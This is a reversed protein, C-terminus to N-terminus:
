PSKVIVRSVSSIAVSINIIRKKTTGASAPFLSACGIKFVVVQEERIENLYRAGPLSLPLENFRVASM